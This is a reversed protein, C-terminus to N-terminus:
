IQLEFIHSEYIRLRINVKNSLIQLFKKREEKLENLNQCNLSSFFLSLSRVVVLSSPCLYRLIHICISTIRWDLIHSMKPVTVIIWVHIKILSFKWQFFSKEPKMRRLLLVCFEGSWVRNLHWGYPFILEKDSNKGALTPGKRHTDAGEQRKRRNTTEPTCQEGVQLSGSLYLFPM